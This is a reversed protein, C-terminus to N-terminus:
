GASERMRRYILGRSVRLKRAVESVNGKCEGLARAIVDRDVDRLGMPKTSVM